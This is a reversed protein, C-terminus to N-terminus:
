SATAKETRKVLINRAQNERIAITAGMVRYAIPDGSASRLLPVVRTGPIFGLDMLRRREQGRCRPSISVIEAPEGEQLSALDPLKKRVPEQDEIMEVTLSSAFFPTLVCEDGNAAFTIKEDTVDMVYVQVGPYLDLALLQEYIAAPEDEVHVIRALAGKKLTSLTRGAQEPMSGKSSPIPDGHPDFVPNGIRAAIADAESPTLQHEMRDASGHWESIRVNTEDALYREWIRHVRVVQLAYSKGADTLFFQDSQATVLGIKQLHQLIHTVRDASIHMNGAISSLHCPKGKYACDFIFKLADEMLVRRTNRRTKKWRALLGQDPWFLIGALIFILVGLLLAMQPPITLLM